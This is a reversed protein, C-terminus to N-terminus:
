GFTLKFGLATKLDSFWITTVVETQIIPLMTTKGNSRQYVHMVKQSTQFNWVGIAQDSKLWNKHLHGINESITVVLPDSVIEARLFLPQYRATL